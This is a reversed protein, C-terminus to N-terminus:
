PGHWTLPIKKGKLTFLKGESNVWFAAQRWTMAHRKQRVVVSTLGDIPNHGELQDFVVLNCVAFVIRYHHCPLPSVTLEGKFDRRSYGKYPWVAYSTERPQSAVHFEIDVQYLTRRRFGKGQHNSVLLSVLKASSLVCSILWEIQGDQGYIADLSSGLSACSKWEPM